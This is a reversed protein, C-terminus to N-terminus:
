FPEATQVLVDSLGNTEKKRQQIQELSLVPIDPDLVDNNQFQEFHACGHHSVGGYATELFV